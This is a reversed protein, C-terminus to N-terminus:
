TQDALLWRGFAWGAVTGIAMALLGAFLDQPRMGGATATFVRAVLVAPNQLGGSPLCWLAIVSFTGVLAPVQAPAARLGLTIVLALGISALVESAFHPAGARAVQGIQWWDLGWLGHMALVAIGAATIQSAAYALARAPAIDGRLAFLLTVAPNLHGGSLPGTLTIWLYLALGVTLAYALHGHPGPGFGATVHASGLIALTLFATGIAEGALAQAM